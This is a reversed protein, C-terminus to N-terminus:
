RRQKTDSANDDFISRFLEELSHFGPTSRQNQTDDPVTPHPDDAPAAPQDSDAQDAPKHRATM